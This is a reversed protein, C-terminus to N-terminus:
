EMEYLEYYAFCEEENKRCYLTPETNVWIAACSFGKHDFEIYPGTVTIPTVAITDDANACTTESLAYVTAFDMEDAAQLNYHAFLNLSNEKILNVGTTTDATDDADCLAGVSDEDGDFQDPNYLGVCNDSSDDVCDSDIDTIFNKSASCEDGSCHSLNLVFFAMLICKTISSGMGISNIITGCNLRSALPTKLILKNNQTSIVRGDKVAEPHSYFTAAKSAM